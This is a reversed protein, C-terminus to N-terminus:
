PAGGILGNVVTALMERQLKTLPSNKRFNLHQYMQFASGALEPDALRIQLIGPVVGGYLNKAKEILLLQPGQAEQESVTKIRAM